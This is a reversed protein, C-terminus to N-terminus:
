RKRKCECYNMSNFFLPSFDDLVCYIDPLRLPSLGLQSYCVLIMWDLGGSSTLFENNNFSSMKATLISVKLSLTHLELVARRGAWGGTGWTWRM